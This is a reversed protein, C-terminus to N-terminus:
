FNQASYKVNKVHLLDYSSMEKEFHTTQKVDNKRDADGTCEMDLSCNIAIIKFCAYKKQLNRLGTSYTLLNIDDYEYHVSYRSAYYTKDEYLKKMKKCKLICAYLVHLTGFECFAFM